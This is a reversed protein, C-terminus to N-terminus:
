SLVWNLIKVKVEMELQILALPANIEITAPHKQGSIYRDDKEIEAIKAQIAEASKMPTKNPTIDITVSGDENRNFEAWGMGSLMLKELMLKESDSESTLEVGKVLFPEKELQAKM